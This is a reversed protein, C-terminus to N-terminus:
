IPNKVAELQGRMLLAERLEIDCNFDNDAKAWLAKDFHPQLLLYFDAASNLALLYGTSGTTHGRTFYQKTISWATM